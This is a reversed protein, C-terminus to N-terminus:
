HNTAYANDGQKLVKGNEGAKNAICCSINLTVTSMQANNIVHVLCCESTDTQASGSGDSEKM